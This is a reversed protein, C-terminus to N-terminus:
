FDTRYRHKLINRYLSSKKALYIAIEICHILSSFTTKTELVKQMNICTITVMPM